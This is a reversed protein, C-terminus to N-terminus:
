NITQNTTSTYAVIEESDPDEGSQPVENDENNPGENYEPAPQAKKGCAILSVAMLLTSIIITLRKTQPIHSVHLQLM